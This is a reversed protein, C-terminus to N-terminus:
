WPTARHTPRMAATKSLPPKLNDRGLVINKAANLVDYQAQLEAQAANLQAVTTALNYATQASEIANYTTLIDDDMVAGVNNNTITTSPKREISLEALCFWYHGGKQENKSNGTVRLRIYKYTTGVTGFYDSTYDASHTTPLPNPEDDKTLTAFETYTGDATNSGEIVISTPQGDGSNRTTYLIRFVDVGAAGTNIRVYHDLGDASNSGSYDTHLFSTKDGDLLHYGDDGQVTYDGNNQATYPANCYVDTSQLPVNAKVISVSGCDDLLTQTSSIVTQLAAKAADLDANEAANYTALLLVYQAKLTNYQRTLDDATATSSALLQKAAYLVDDATILKDNTLQNDGLSAAAYKDVISNVQAEPRSIGLEAIGFYYHGGFTGGSATTVTFRLYRYPSSSSGITPSTYSAAKGTPLGESLTAIPNETWNIM